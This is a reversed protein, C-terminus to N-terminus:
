EKYALKTEMYSGTVNCVGIDTSVRVKGKHVRIVMGGMDWAQVCADIYM